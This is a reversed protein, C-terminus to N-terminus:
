AAPLAATRELEARLSEAAATLRDDATVPAPEEFWHRYLFCAPLASDPAHTNILLTRTHELGIAHSRVLGIGILQLVKGAFARDPLLRLWERLVASGGPEYTPLVFVVAQARGLLRHSWGIEPHGSNGALLASQPLDRLRLVGVDYDSEGLRRHFESTTSELPSHVHPSSSVALVSAM